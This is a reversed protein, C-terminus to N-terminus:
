SPVKNSLSIIFKLSANIIKHKQLSINSYETFKKRTDFFVFVLKNKPTLEYKKVPNFGLLIKIFLLYLNSLVILNKRLPLPNAGYDWCLKTGIFQESKIWKHLESINKLVVKKGGKIM